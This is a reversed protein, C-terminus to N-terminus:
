QLFQPFYIGERALGLRSISTKAVLAGAVPLGYLCETVHLWDSHAEVAFFSVLM